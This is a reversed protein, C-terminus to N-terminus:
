AHTPPADARHAAPSIPSEVASRANRRANHSLDFRQRRIFCGNAATWASISIRENLSRENKLRLLADVQRFYLFLAVTQRFHLAGEHTKRIVSLLLM